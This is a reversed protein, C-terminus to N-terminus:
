ESRSESKNGRIYSYILIGFLTVIFFYFIYQVADGVLTSEMTPLEKIHVDKADSIQQAADLYGNFVVASIRKTTLENDKRPLLPIMYDWFVRKVDIIDQLDQSTKVDIKKIDKILLILVYSKSLDKTVNSEFDELSSGEPLDKMTVVYLGIDTKGYIEKSIIDMEAITKEQIIGAPAYVFQEAHLAIAFLLFLLFSSLFGRKKSFGPM